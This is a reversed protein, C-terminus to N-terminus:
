IVRVFQSPVPPHGDLVRSKLWAVTATGAPYVTALEDNGNWSWLALPCNNVAVNLLPTIVNAALPCFLSLGPSEKFRGTVALAGQEAPGYVHVVPTEPLKSRIPLWGTTVTDPLQVTGVVVNTLAGGIM